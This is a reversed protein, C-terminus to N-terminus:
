LSSGGGGGGGGGGSMGAYANGITAADSNMTSQQSNLFQQWRDLDTTKKQLGYFNNALDMQGIPNLLSENRQLIQARLQSPILSRSSIADELAQRQGTLGLQTGTLYGLDSRAQTADDVAAGARIPALAAIASRIDYSGDGGQRSLRSQDLSRLAQDASVNAANNVADMRRRRLEGLQSAMSGNFFQDIGSIEQNSQKEVAPESQLFKTIFDGLGSESATRSAGFDGLLSNIQGQIAPNKVNHLTRFTPDKQFLGLVNSATSGLSM